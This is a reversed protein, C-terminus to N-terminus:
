TGAGLWRAIAGPQPALLGADTIFQTVLAAPTVDFAPNKAAAGPPPVRVRELTGQATLGSVYLVEEESREEIPIAAGDPTAPDFTSRPAAVYFPVGHHQSLVAVTFTGIKNAVDGNAAIRVAGVLVGDIGGRAYFYGAATDAIVAYPIGEQQLEWATLKAGQSRPRTEDVYVFLPMGRRHAQYLPALASGWDTFALWGANCHTLVRMSPRLLAAGAVGIREGARANEDALRTAMDVAARRAAAPDASRRAATLVREVAHFLDHATPRTARIVQAGQELFSAFDVDPAELAVQAMAFGAAGGIAGAGRVAMTTIAEATDRWGPCRLLEFRHPLLRQDILRVAGGEMWVTRYATGDVRM